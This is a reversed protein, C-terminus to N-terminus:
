ESTLSENQNVYNETVWHIILLCFQFFFVSTVHFYSSSNSALKPLHTSKSIHWLVLFVLTNGRKPSNSQEQSQNCKSTGYLRCLFIYELWNMNIPKKQCLFSWKDVIIFLEFQSANTNANYIFYDNSNKEKEIIM